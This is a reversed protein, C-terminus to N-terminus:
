TEVRHYLAGSTNNLAPSYEAGTSIQATPAVVHFRPHERTQYRPPLFQARPHTRTGAHDPFPHEEGRRQGPMQPRAGEDAPVSQGGHIGHLHTAEQYFSGSLHRSGAGLSSPQAADEPFGSGEIGPM